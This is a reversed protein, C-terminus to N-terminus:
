PASERRLGWRDPAGRNYKTPFHPRPGNSTPGSARITGARIWRSSRTTSPTAYRNLAQPNSANPVITDPQAFKGIAADYYRSQYFYFDWPSSADSEDRIQGTYGRDTPFNGSQTLKGYATYRQQGILSGANDTVATISGNRDSHLVYFSGGQRM